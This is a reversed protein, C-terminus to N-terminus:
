YVNNLFQGSADSTDSACQSYYKLLVVPSFTPNKRKLDLM